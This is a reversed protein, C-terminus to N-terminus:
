TAVHSGSMSVRWLLITGCACTAIYYSSAGIVRKKKGVCLVSTFRKRTPGNYYDGTLFGVGQARLAEITFNFAKSYKCATVADKTTGPERSRFAPWTASVSTQPLSKTAFLPHLRTTCTTYANFVLVAGDKFKRSDCDTTFYASQTQRGEPFVEYEWREADLAVSRAGSGELFRGRMYSALDALRHPAAGLEYVEAHLKRKTTTEGVARIEHLELFFTRAVTAGPLAAKNNASKILTDLQQQMHLMAVRAPVGPTLGYVKEAFARSAADCQTDDEDENEHVKHGLFTLRRELKHEGEHEKEHEEMEPQVQTFRPEEDDEEPEDAGFAAEYYRALGERVTYGATRSAGHIGDKNV